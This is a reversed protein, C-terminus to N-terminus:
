AWHGVGPGFGELGSASLGPAAKAQYRNRDSVAPGLAHSVLQSLITALAAGRVGMDFLYIFIPDLVINCIAGIIVIKMAINTFRATLFPNLGLSFLILCRAACISACTTPPM